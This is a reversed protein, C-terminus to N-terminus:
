RKLRKVREDHVGHHLEIDLRACVSQRLDYDTHYIYFYYWVFHRLLHYSFPNRQIDEELGFVKGEPFDPYYDLRISLDIFRYVVKDYEKLLEDFTKTMSAEHFGISDSVQKIVVFGLGELLDFLKDQVEDIIKEDSWKPNHYRLFEGLFQVIEEHGAEISELIFKLVRLGLSYCERTLELKPEGKMSGYFNRLVQGLIQITKFAVNIQLFEQLNQHQDVDDVVCGQMEDITVRSDDQDIWDAEIEDKRALLERHREGPSATDIVLRPVDTMLDSLFETDQMLDCELYHSFLERSAELISEIIFPDKSLYGLFLLINASETHHLRSSMSIIYKRVAMDSIHDRLYRAVFYYYIYPYRFTVKDDEDQLVSVKCLSSLLVEFDLRLSYNDCHGQHWDFAEGTSVFPTPSTFLYYAFESLYTYLMGLDLDLESLTRTLLSEYLFGYSGSTPATPIPTRAEMLQLIALLFFPYSPIFNRQLLFSITKEARVTLQSLESSSITYQRGLCYWKKILDARRRHGFPLIECHTFDWLSHSEREQEVLDDFRLQESGLVVIFDFLNELVSIIRNRGRANVGSRHFDDLIIAKKSRELQNFTDIDPQAYTKEFLRRLSSTITKKSYGKLEAGRAYIPLLGHDQLERFLVKSLATKGCKESGVLLVRRHELMFSPVAEGSIVSTSWGLESPLGVDRLDPYVFLDGFKIEEKEPHTFNAGPDKLFKNFPENLRFEGQLRVLNRQFPIGDYKAEHKYKCSESDWSFTHLEQMEEDLDVVVVNFSSRQSHGSDQLILGELYEVGQGSAYEKQYFEGEHEHGTLLIDSTAELKSFLRRANAAEFWNYPHHLITAVFDATSRADEEQRLVDVPFLLSGQDEELTSMWASNILHFEVTGQPLDYLEKTYVRSLTDRDIDESKWRTAFDQYNDQVGACHSLVSEDIDSSTLNRLMLARRSDSESFDCDHNGPAIVFHIKCEPLRGCLCKRLENFFKNALIYEEPKGSFAIDGTVVVFCCDIDCSASSCAAAALKEARPLVPNQEESHRLHIDSLHVLVLKM